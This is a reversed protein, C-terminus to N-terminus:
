QTLLGSLSLSYWKCTSDILFHYCFFKKFVSFLEYTEFSIKHNGYTFGNILLFFQSPSFLM